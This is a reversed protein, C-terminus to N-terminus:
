SVGIEGQNGGEQQFSIQLNLTMNRGGPSIYNSNKQHSLQPPGKKM